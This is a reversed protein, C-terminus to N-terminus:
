LLFLKFPHSVFRPLPAPEFSQLRIWVKYLKKIDPATPFFLVISPSEHLTAMTEITYMTHVIM